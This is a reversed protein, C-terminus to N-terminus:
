AVSLLTFLDLLVSEFYGGQLKRVLPGILTSLGELALSLYALSPM